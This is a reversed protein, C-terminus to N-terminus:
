EGDLKIREEALRFEEPTNLNRFVVGGPDFQGTVEASVVQANVDKLWGTLKYNRAELASKIVPLCTDRRYVAHLPELGNATAPIVVDADTKILSDLEYEFLSRSAFPMDCGVAAVFPHQAARLVSYLGGLAGQGPEEDPLIAMNLFIYAAPSNTSLLIEDAMPSLRDVVHQILPRGQLPM